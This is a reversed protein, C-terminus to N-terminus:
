LRTNRQLLPYITLSIRRPLMTVQVLITLMHFMIDIRANAKEVSNYRNEWRQSNQLSDHPRGLLPYVVGEDPVSALVGFGLSEGTWFMPWREWPVSRANPLWTSLYPNRVILPLVPPQLVSEAQALSALVIATIFSFWSRLHLRSM